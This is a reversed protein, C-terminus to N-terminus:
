RAECAPTRISRIIRPGAAQPRSHRPDRVVDPDDADDVLVELMRPDGVELIAVLRLDEQGRGVPHRPVEAPADFDHKRDFVRLELPPKKVSDQAHHEGVVDLGALKLAVSGIAPHRWRRACRADARLKLKLVHSKLKALGARDAMGRRDADARESTASAGVVGARTSLRGRWDGGLRCAIAAAGDLLTRYLGVTRGCARLAAIGGKKLECIPSRRAGVVLLSVLESLTPNHGVLMLRGEPRDRLWREITAADSGTQLM